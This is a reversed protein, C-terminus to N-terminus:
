QFRWTFGVLDRGTNPSHSGANSLHGIRITLNHTVDFALGLNFNVRGSNLADDNQIAAIGFSASFRGVHPTFGARAVIQNGFREGGYTYDGVLLAGAYLDIAGIQHPWIVTAEAYPAIGRVMAKGGGLDLEAARCTTTALVVLGVVLACFTYIYKMMGRPNGFLSM